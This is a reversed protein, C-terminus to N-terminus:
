KWFQWWRKYELGGKVDGTMLIETDLPLHKSNIIIKKEVFGM